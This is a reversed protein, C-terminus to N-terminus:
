RCTLCTQLYKLRTRPEYLSQNNQLGQVNMFVCFM